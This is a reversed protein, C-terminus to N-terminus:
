VFHWVSFCIGFISLLLGLPALVVPALLLLARVLLATPSLPAFVDVHEARLCAVAPSDHGIRQRSFIIELALCWLVPLALIKLAACTLGLFALPLSRLLLANGLSLTFALIAALAMVGTKALLASGIATAASLYVARLAIHSLGALRHAAAAASMGM